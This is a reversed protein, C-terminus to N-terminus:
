SDTAGTKDDAQGTPEVILQVAKGYGIVLADKIDVLAAKSLGEAEPIDIRATIHQSHFLSKPIRLNVVVAVAGAGVTPEKNFLNVSKTNEGVVLYCKRIEYKPLDIPDDSPPTKDVLVAGLQMLALKRMILDGPEASDPAEM